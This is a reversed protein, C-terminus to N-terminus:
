NQANDPATTELVHAISAAGRCIADINYTPVGADAARTHASSQRDTAYAADALLMLFFATLLLWLIFERWLSAQQRIDTRLNTSTFGDHSPESAPIRRMNM